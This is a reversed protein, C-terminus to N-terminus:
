RIPVKTSQSVSQVSAATLIQYEANGIPAIHSLEGGMFFQYTIELIGASLVFGKGVLNWADRAVGNEDVGKCIAGGERFHEMVDQMTLLVTAGVNVTAWRGRFKMFRDRVTSDILYATRVESAIRPMRKNPDRSTTVHLAVTIRDDEQKTVTIGGALLRERKPKDYKDDPHMAAFRLTKNTLPNIYPLNGSCGGALAAAVFVPDLWEIASGNFLGPRETVLTVQPSSVQGGIQLATTEAIGAALGAFVHFIKGAKERQEQVFAQAMAVITPDSSNVLVMGGRPQQDGILNFAAEWEARRPPLTKGGTFFATDEAPVGRALEVATYADNTKTNIWHAISAVYATVSVDETADAADVADLSTSDLFKDAGESLEAGLTGQNSLAVVLADISRIEPASLAMDVGLLGDTPGQAVAIRGGSSSALVVTDTTSAITLVDAFPTTHRVSVNTVNALIATRLATFSATTNVGITVKVHGDTIADDDDFEFVVGNVTATDGDHPNTSDTFTGGLEVILRAAPPVTSVAYNNNTDSIETIVVGVEPCRVVVASGVITASAVGSVNDHIATALNAFTADADTGITVAITDATVTDNSDFEFIVGNIELQDGDAVQGEYDVHGISYLVSLLAVTANGGYHADFALGLNDGIYETSDDKVTVKKGLVTGPETIRRARLSPTGYKTTTIEILDTGSGNTIRSTSPTNRNVVVTVMGACGFIDDETFPSRAVRILAVGMDGTYDPDHKQQVAATSAFTNRVLPKGDRFDSLVILDNVPDVPPSVEQTQLRVLGSVSPEIHTVGFVDVYALPNM